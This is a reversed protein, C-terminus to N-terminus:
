NSMICLLSSVKCVFDVPLPNKARKSVKDVERSAMAISSCCMEVNQNVIAMFYEYMKSLAEMKVNPCSAVKKAHDELVQHVHKGLYYVLLAIKTPTWNSM